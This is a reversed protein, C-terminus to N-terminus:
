EHAGEKVIFREIASELIGVDVVTNKCPGNPRENSLAYVPIPFVALLGQALERECAVALILKPRYRKVCEKAMLSGTALCVPINHKRTVSTINGVPCRGCNKCNSSDSVVNEKCGSFQLCRPLLVLIKEPNVNKLRFRLLFNNFAFVVKKLFFSM